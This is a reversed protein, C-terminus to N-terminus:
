RGDLNNKWTVFLRLWKVPKAIFRIGAYTEFSAGIAPDFQRTAELLGVMGAQILDEVQVSAPLRTMLHYAIRKVLGANKMVLSETDSVQVATYLAIGTM